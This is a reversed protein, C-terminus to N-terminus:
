NTVYKRYEINSSICIPFISLYLFIVLIPIPFIGQLVPMKFACTWTNQGFFIVGWKKHKLRIRELEIVNETFKLCITHTTKSFILNLTEAMEKYPLPIVMYPFQGFSQVEIDWFSCMSVQQFKWLMKWDVLDKLIQSFVIPLIKPWVM